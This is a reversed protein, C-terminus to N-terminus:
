AFTESFSACFHRVKNPLDTYGLRYFVSERPDESYLTGRGTAWGTTGTNNGVAYDIKMATGTPTVDLTVVIDTGSIAVNTIVPSNGGTQSFVFGHNTVGSTGVTTTDFALATCEPPLEMPITIVNNVRTAGGAVPRLGNFPTGAEMHLAAIAICEGARMRGFDAIHIFTGAYMEYPYMPGALATTTPRSRAFALQALGNGNPTSDNSATATQMLIIKPTVAVGSATVYAPVCDTDVFAEFQTNWPTGTANDNEGQIFVLTDLSHTMIPYRSACDAVRATEEVANEHTYVSTSPPVVSGPFFYEIATEGRASVTGVRVANEIGADREFQTLAIMAMALISQLNAGSSPAYPIIDNTPDAYSSWLLTGQHTLANEIMCVHKSFPNGTYTPASGPGGTELMHSQGIGLWQRIGRSSIAIASASSRLKQQYIEFTTKDKDQWTAVIGDSGDYRVNTVTPHGRMAAPAIYTKGLRSPSHVFRGDPDIGCIVKAGTDLVAEAFPTGTDRNTPDADPSVQATRAYLETSNDNCKDYAVKPADGTGDNDTTGLNILQLAM